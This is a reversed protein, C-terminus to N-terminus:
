AAADTERRSRKLSKGLDKVEKRSAQISDRIIRSDERKVSMIKPVPDEAERQYTALFQEMQLQLEQVKESGSSLSSSSSAACKKEREIDAAINRERNENELTQLSSAVFFRESPESEDNIDSNCGDFTRQGDDRFLDHRLNVWTSSHSESKSEKYLDVVTKCPESKALGPNEDASAFDDRPRKSSRSCSRSSRRPRPQAVVLNARSLRGVDECPKPVMTQPGDSDASLKSSWPCRDFPDDNITTSQPANRINDPHARAYEWAWSDFMKRSTFVDRGYTRRACHLGDVDTQGRMRGVTRRDTRGVTRGDTREVTQGVTHLTPEDM